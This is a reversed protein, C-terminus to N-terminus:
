WILDSVKKYSNFPNRINWKEVDTDAILDPSDDFVKQGRFLVIFRDALGLCKEIEHSLIIVTKGQAKLEKILANVQKVGQYDLNAYPEDMIIIPLNMALMCAVALRRKEGGSLFRATFDKKETLGTKKLADEVALKIQDKKLGLNKPGFAIDEEPTEGLIQTEAEQFVLGVKKGADKSNIDEEFVKVSGSDAEELGAIISMMLSKGSGNEGGIVLCQGEDLEFSVNKLIQRPGNITEFTKSINKVSVAKM